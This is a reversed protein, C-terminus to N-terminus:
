SSGMIHICKETKKTPIRREYTLEGWVPWHHLAKTNAQVIQQVFVINDPSKLHWSAWKVDRYYLTTVNIKNINFGKLYHHQRGLSDNRGSFIELKHIRNEHIDNLTAGTIYIYIYEYIYEYIYLQM